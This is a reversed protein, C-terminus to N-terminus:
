TGGGRSSGDMGGEPRVKVSATHTWGTAAVAAGVRSPARPTSVSATTQM